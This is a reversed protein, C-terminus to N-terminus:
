AVFSVTIGIVDNSERWHARSESYDLISGGAKTVTYLVDHLPQIEGADPAFLTLGFTGAEVGAYHRHLAFNVSHLGNQQLKKLVQPRTAKPQQGSPLLGAIVPLGSPLLPTM